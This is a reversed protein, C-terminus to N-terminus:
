VKTNLFEQKPKFDKNKIRTPIPRNIMEMFEEYNKRKLEFIDLEINKLCSETKINPNKQQNESQNNSKNDNFTNHPIKYFSQPENLYKVDLKKSKWRKEISIEIKRAQYSKNCISNM